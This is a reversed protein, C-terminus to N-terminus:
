VAAEMDELRSAPTVTQYHALTATHRAFGSSSRPSSVSFVARGCGLVVVKRRGWGRTGRWTVHAHMYRCPHVGRRTPPRMAPGAAGGGGRGIQAGRPFSCVARAGPSNSTPVPDPDGPLRHDHGVRKGLWEAAGGGTRGPSLQVPRSFIETEPGTKNAVPLIASM